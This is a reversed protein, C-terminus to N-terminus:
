VRVSVPNQISAVVAVGASRAVVRRREAVGGNLTVSMGLLGTFMYLQDNFAGFILFFSISCMLFNALLFANINHLEPDGYRYNRYLVNIGAGLLWLFGAFGWLGMPILLSLPGSHYDGTVLFEQAHIDEAGGGLVAFYLEEPDISYGKGLLLYRPIQPILVQWMEIRWEVSAAADYKVSPDVKVPLFSVARQASRPLHDSLAFVLMGGAVLFALLIPVFRTLWLGEICFQCFLLLAIMLEVSRFGALLTLMLTTVFLIVRWPHGYSFIGRIGWRLLFFSALVSCSTGLSTLREIGPLASVGANAASAYESPFLAFLFSFAPGMLFVLNGIICTTGALYYL